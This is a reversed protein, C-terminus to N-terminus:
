PWTTEQCSTEDELILPCFEEATVRDLNGIDAKPKFPLESVLIGERYIRHDKEEEEFESFDDDEDDDTRATAFDIDTQVLTNVRRNKPKERSIERSVEKSLRSLGGKDLRRRLKKVNLSSTPPPLTSGEIADEERCGDQNIAGPRRREKDRTDSSSPPKRSEQASRATSAPFKASKDTTGASVAAAIESTGGAVAEEPKRSTVIARPCADIIDAPCVAANSDYTGAIGYSLSPEAPLESPAPRKDVAGSSEFDAKIRSHKRYEEQLYTRFQDQFYGDIVKWVIASYWSLVGLLFVGRIIFALM